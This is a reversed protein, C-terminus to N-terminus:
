TKDGTHPRTSSLRILRDSVDQEFRRIFAQVFSLMDQEPKEILPTLDLGFSMARSADTKHSAHYTANARRRGMTALDYRKGGIIQSDFVGLLAAQLHERSSCDFAIKDADVLWDLGRWVECGYVRHPREEPPLRRLAEITRLVVAVHTDHRDVPNHTYLTEPRTARLVMALDKVPADNTGDRVVSSPHNLLVQAAYEGVVAAKKQEKRRVRGMAEDNYGAYLGDRPPGGGDTVVVGSFWRDDRQFCTLIGDCAMIEVDDQHAGIALHTTRALATEEPAGDPVFVEASASSFKM